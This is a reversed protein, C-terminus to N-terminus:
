NENILAFSWNTSMSEHGIPTEASEHEAPAGQILSHDVFNIGIVGYVLTAFVFSSYYLPELSRESPIIQLCDLIGFWNWTFQNQKM